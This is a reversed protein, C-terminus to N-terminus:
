DLHSNCEKSYFDNKEILVRLMEHNFESGNPDSIQSEVYSELTTSEKFCWCGGITKSGGGNRKNSSGIRQQTSSSSSWNGGRHRNKRRLLHKAMNHFRIGDSKHTTTTTTTTTKRTESGDFGRGEKCDLCALDSSREVPSDSM